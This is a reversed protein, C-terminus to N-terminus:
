SKKHKKHKKKEEDWGDKKTERLFPLGKLFFFVWCLYIFLYIFIYIYFSCIVLTKNSCLSMVNYVTNYIYVEM